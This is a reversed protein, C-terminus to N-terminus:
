VGQGDIGHEETITERYLLSKLLGRAIVPSSFSEGSSPVSRAFASSSSTLSLEDLSCTSPCAYQEVEGLELLVLARGAVVLRLAWVEGLWREVRGEEGELRM